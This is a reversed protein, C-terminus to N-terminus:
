RRENREKLDRKYRKYAPNRQYVRIKELIIDRVLTGRKKREYFAIDDLERITEWDVKTALQCPFHVPKPKTRIKEM